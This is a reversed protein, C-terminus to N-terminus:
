KALSACIDECSRGEQILRIIQIAESLKKSFDTNNPIVIRRPHSKWAQLIRLNINSALTWDEKRVHSRTYDKSAATDLHIVWDYRAIEKEQDTKLLKWFSPVSGPWYALGDLTGRDCVLIKKNSIAEFYGEIEVQLQYIVKQQFIRDQVGDGRPLGGRFLISASEPVIDILSSFERKLIETLTTKGASPGGTIVIKTQQHSTRPTRGRSKSTTPPSKRKKPM